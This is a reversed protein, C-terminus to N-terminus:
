LGAAVSPPILVKDILHTVGNTAFRNFGTVWAVEGSGDQLGVYCWWGYWYCVKSAYLDEGALTTIYVGEEPVDGGLIEVDVVHYALIQSLLTTNGPVTENGVLIVSIGPYTAELRDFAANFPAFLTYYTPDFYSSGDLLGTIFHFVFVTSNFTLDHHVQCHILTSRGAVQGLVVFLLTAKPVFRVMWGLWSFSIKWRKHVHIKSSLTRLLTMVLGRGSNVVILTPDVLPKTLMM